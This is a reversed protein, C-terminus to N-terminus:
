LVHVVGIQHISNIYDVDDNHMDYRHRCYKVVSMLTLCISITINIVMFGHVIPMFQMVNGSIAGSILLGASSTLSTWRCTRMANDAM